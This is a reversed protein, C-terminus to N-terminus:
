FDMESIKMDRNQAVISLVKAFRRAFLEMTERKFLKTGYELRVHLGDACEEVELTIDFEASSKVVSCPTFKLGDIEVPVRETNQLILMVDFLPNRGIQKKVGLKKVLAGFPYEQNEYADLSEEKVENLFEKLSKSGLPKNRLAIINVFMGMINQLDPHPRAAIPTGIIIDEQGTYKRLLINLSAMLVMFLTVDTSVALDNLADLINKDVNFFLSSGEFSQVWPRRFDLPMNLDPLSGSYKEVWYKEMKTLSLEKYVTNFWVIYDKYQVRLEPLTKNNYFDLFDRVLINVSIGDSIIHHIDYFLIYRSSGVKVLNVRLLPAKGLDFSQLLHSTIYDIDKNEFEYYNIKMDEISDHVVQVSVGNVTTFTTRLAEHRKVTENLAKELRAIDIEGDVLIATPINYTTGVGKIGQIQSLTHIVTQSESIPYSDRKQTKQIPLYDVKATNRIYEASGEITPNLFIENLPIEVDFQQYIKSVFTMVNLSNGGIKLINRDIGIKDVGIIECWIKELEKEIFNRPATYSIVEVKQPDPLRKYDVKGNPTLPIKDISIFYSPIMYEPLIQEIYERLKDAQITTDATYYAALYIDSYKQNNIDERYGLENLIREVKLTDIFGEYEGNADELSIHGTRVEWSNPYTYNDYGREKRQIFIGVDNIMCNSSCFGTDSPNEWYKNRRKLFELIENKSVDSYRYFDILQTQKLMNRDVLKDKDLSSTVYDHKEHYILRQEFIKQEVEEIDFIGQKFIDSLRLDFIQGRSFGTVIFKINNEYALKTSRTRLVKFCGNCVSCEENLGDLFVDKMRDFNDIVLDVNLEAVVSKINELATKSIYGNDFTYALVKIGMDVLKYLVYTSDKGGSYLLLCDYKENGNERGKEFVKKLDEIEKFYADARDKYKEYFHCVSCVEDNDLEVGPYTSPLGCKSCKVLKSKEKLSNSNERFDVVCENIDPYKLIQNEIEDIEVRFGRIKVQRDLRGLFEINGDSLLRGLDGTRYVIDTKEESFPSQIFRKETIEDDGYYGLSMYPTRIIIEGSEGKSCIKMDKDVIIVKCGDIPKGIPINNRNVDTPEIPYFLKALTTETPGYLNVLQVRSGFIQYWNALESPLVREGALLVLRLAKFNDSSLAKTNFVRFLSPTCHILNVGSEEIWNVLSVSSLMEEKSQPICITGGALFPVFIDRLFPDHCQSTLQAVRINEAIDFKKMEWVLFHLLSINKGLIAKPRGTSGSTFYIYIKDEPEYEINEIKSLNDLDIKSFKNDINLIKLGSCAEKISDLLEAGISNDILLIQVNSTEIMSKIRNIPYQSDIPVFVTGAKLIGILSVIVNLKDNSLVGIHIGKQAGNTTIINALGESKKGLQEYTVKKERYEVAIRSSFKEIAENIRSQMTNVKM